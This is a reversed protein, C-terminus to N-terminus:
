LVDSRNEGKVSVGGNRGGDVTLNESAPITFERAEKFSIHDGNGYHNSSCFGREKHKAEAKHEKGQGIVDPNLIFLVFFALALSVAKM